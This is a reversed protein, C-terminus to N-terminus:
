KKDCLDQPLRVPFWNSSGRRKLAKTKKPRQKFGEGTNSLHKHKMICSRCMATASRQGQRCPTALSRRRKMMQKSLYPSHYHLMLMLDPMLGAVLGPLIAILDILAFPSFIYKVRGRIGRYESRVGALLLRILYECGFVILFVSEAYDFYIQYPQSLTPETEFVLTIVSLLIIYGLTKELLTSKTEQRPFLSKELYTKM